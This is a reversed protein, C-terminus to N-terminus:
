LPDTISMYLVEKPNNLVFEGVKKEAKTFNNFLLKTQTFIDIDM